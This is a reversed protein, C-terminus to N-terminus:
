AARLAAVGIGIERDLLPQLERGLQVDVADLQRRCQVGREGVHRRLRHEVGDGVREVQALREVLQAGLTDLLRDGSGADRDGVDGVEVVHQVLVRRDSALLVVEHDRHHVGGDSSPTGATHPKTPRSWDFDISWFRISNSCLKTGRSLAALSRPNCYRTSCHGIGPQVGDSLKWLLM